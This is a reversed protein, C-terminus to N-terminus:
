SLQFFNKLLLQGAKQSKEPHFQVGCINGDQVCACFRGGYDAEAVVLNRDAVDFGYSHVFYFDRVAAFNKFLPSDGKLHLDNWGIHPLPVGKAELKVVNGKIWGLGAFEGHEFGKDALVQMGVCIGLFPKKRKTVEEELVDLPITSKIREMAAGFAGVGPLIVHTASRVDDARNSVVADYKLYSVINYVSRVNGSGYDLICAKVASM